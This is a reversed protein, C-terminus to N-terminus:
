FNRYCQCHGAGVCSVEDMGQFLSFVWGLFAVDSTQSDIGGMGALLERRASYYFRHYEFRAELAAQLAAEVRGRLEAV